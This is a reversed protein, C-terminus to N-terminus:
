EVNMVSQVTYFMPIDAKGLAEKCTILLAENMAWFTENTATVEIYLNIGKEDMGNVTVKPAPDKLAAPHTSVADLLIAKARVADSQYPIRINIGTKRIKNWSFNKITSNSMAGNPIILIQNQQTTLRTHFIDISDVTGEAGVSSTVYDGVKFPKFVLILIGGAFNALSGQLALGVALGAAGIAAVFSTTQIGLKNVVTLILLIKLSIGVLKELFVQVSVDIEKKVLIRHILRKLLKILWVGVFWILLATVITTLFQPLFTLFDAKMQKWSLQDLQDLKDLDDIVM